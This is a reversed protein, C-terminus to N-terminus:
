CPATVPLREKSRKFYDSEKLLFFRVKNLFVALHVLAFLVLNIGVLVLETAVLALSLAHAAANPFSPPLMALTILALVVFFVAAAGVEGRRVM